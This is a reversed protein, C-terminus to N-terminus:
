YGAVKLFTRLERDTFNSISNSLFDLKDFFFHDAGAIIDLDVKIDRQGDLKKALSQVSKCDVIADKDGQIIMGNVPCPSLFSFDYLNAPPSVALFRSVDPRRMLLQMAIWAGFSFGSIWISTANPNMGILFELAALADRLEGDGHGYSGESKGVGRFNFRLVNFGKASFTKYMSYIVKNNMTGGHQPHPHLILVIPPNERESLHYKAELRGEPGNIMIEPM